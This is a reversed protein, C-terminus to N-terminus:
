ENAAAVMRAMRIYAALDDSDIRIQRGIRCAKLRGLEIERDIVATSVRLITGAERRNYFTPRNQTETM